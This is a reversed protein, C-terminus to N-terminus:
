VYPTTPLTLHTYSVPEMRGDQSAPNGNIDAIADYIGAQTVDFANYLNALEPFEGRLSGSQALGPTSMVAGLALGLTLKSTQKKIKTFITDM